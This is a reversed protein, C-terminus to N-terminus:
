RHDGAQQDAVGGLHELSLSEAVDYRQVPPQGCVLLLLDLENM